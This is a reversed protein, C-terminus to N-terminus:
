IEEITADWRVSVSTHLSQGMVYYTMEAFPNPLTFDKWVKICNTGINTAFINASRFVMTTLIVLAGCYITGYMPTLTEKFYVRVCIPPTTPGELFALFQLRESYRFCVVIPANWKKKTLTYQMARIFNKFKSMRPVELCCQHIEYITSHNLQFTRIPSLGFDQLDNHNPLLMESAVMKVHTKEVVATLQENLRKSVRMTKFLETYNLFDLFIITICDRGIHNLSVRFPSLFSHKASLAAMM